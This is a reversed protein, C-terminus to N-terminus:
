EHEHGKRELLRELKENVNDLRADIVSHSRIWDERRVYYLPLEARLEMLDRDVRQWEQDQVRASEALADFRADVHRQYGNLLWRVAALLVVSWAAAVTVLVAAMKVTIADM